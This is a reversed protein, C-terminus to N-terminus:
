AHVNKGGIDVQTSLIRVTNFEIDYYKGFGANIESKEQAEVIYDILDKAPAINQRLGLMTAFLYEFGFVKIEQKAVDHKFLKPVANYTSDWDNIREVFLQRHKKNQARVEYLGNPMTEEYKNIRVITRNDTTLYYYKGQSLINGTFNRPYATKRGHKKWFNYAHILNLNSITEMKIGKKNNILSKKINKPYKTM